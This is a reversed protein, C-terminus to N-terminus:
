MCLEEVALPLKQPVIASSVQEIGCAQQYAESKPIM